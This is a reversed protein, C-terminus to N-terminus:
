LFDAVGHMHLPLLLVVGGIDLARFLDTLKELDSARLPDAVGGLDLM